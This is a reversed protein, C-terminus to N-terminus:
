RPALNREFFRSITMYAHPGVDAHSLLAHKHGPYVMIDFPQGAAQLAAFLKTSNAFLVNDDTMGHMVLLPGALGSVYPFVSSAEYGAPNSQPTGMYRETYHTDYLRWDTVPAGSVGARFVEPARFMLHLAMYGGYSWGFVGIREEDVYPQSAFWKAGAVQDDVEVSAMHNLLAADSAVGQQSAGRNDISFFLFGRRVLYEALQRGRAQWANMVMQGHPGGYVNVIVPYRRDSDFDRPKMLQWALKRGDAAPLTGFEVQPRTALYPAYPHSADLRNELLWGLHKGNRDKVSVQLPQDVSSYRDIFRQADAAMDIEHWGRETTIRQPEGPAAGDLGISYLHRETYGDYSGTFYVRGAKEDVGAIAKPTGVVMWDGATLAHILKGDNDYLYLHPYGTRQSKWIFADRRELFTLDNHLEVWSDSTEAFLLQSAGSRADVKLLDLRKQDRSQRQVLLNRGDPFWDVRAVYIDTNTGLDVPVAARDDLSAVFLAVVANPRGTAPYRQRVLRSEEAYIEFREVEDVGSEDVRAYVIRSDDPSWWYGTDRDMEEQAIFEAMGFSVPGAGDQTIAIETNKQLDFVVLNQDRIFSVYRGKPSFRADTEYADTQTIRRPTGAGQGTLAYVYLDGALPFLLIRGDDSFSYEVIGKLSSIRQRERRAQEEASLEGEDPVLRRSDVLQRSEGSKANYEWLDFRDKDEASAKLFTIRRGDPAFELGRLVPGNLDPAAFLRDITLEAADAALGAIPTLMAIIGLLKRM